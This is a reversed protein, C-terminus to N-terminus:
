MEKVVTINSNFTSDSDRLETIWYDGCLPDLIKVHYGQFALLLAAMGIRDYGFGCIEVELQTDPDRNFWGLVNTIPTGAIIDPSELFWHSGNLISNTMDIEASANGMCTFIDEPFDPDRVVQQEDFLTAPKLGDQLFIVQKNRVKNSISSRLYEGVKKIIKPTIEINSPLHAIENQLGFVLLLKFSKSTKM